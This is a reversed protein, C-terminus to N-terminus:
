PSLRIYALDAGTALGVGIARKDHADQGVLRIRQLIAVRHDGALPNALRYLAVPHLPKDALRQAREVGPQRRPVVKDDDDSSRRLIQWIESGSQARKLPNQDPRSEKGGSRLGCRWICVSTLMQSLEHHPRGRVISVALSAVAPTYRPLTLIRRGTRHSM